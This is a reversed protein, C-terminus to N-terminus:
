KLADYDAPTDIDRLAEVPWAHVAADHLHAMAVAKGGGDGVLALLEPWLTRSFVLPPALVSEAGYSSVALPARGNRVSDSLARLMTSTVHVMDGLMVVVASVSTDLAGLGAHLSTSTPGTFERNDVFQCELGNLAERIRPSEHGTVVVVPNLGAEIARRVARRVIPEGDIELLLKNTSSGM